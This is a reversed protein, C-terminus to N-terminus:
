AQGFSVKLAPLLDGGYCYLLTGYRKVSCRYAMHHELISSLQSRFWNPNTTSMEDKDITVQRLRSIDLVKDSFHDYVDPLLIANQKLLIEGVYIASYDTAYSLVQSTTNVAALDLMNLKVRDLLSRIDDDSSSTTNSM